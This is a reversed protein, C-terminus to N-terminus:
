FTYNSVKMTISAGDANTTKWYVTQATILPVDPCTGGISDLVAGGTNELAYRAGTGGSDGAVAGVRNSISSGILVTATKAITPVAASISQSTYSTQATASSLISVPVFSLSRGFQIGQVFQSSGNTPWIGILASYTYGSPMNAGGYIAATSTTANCALINKTGDGKAIAYVSVFGSAPAAGTDMGGAGTTALNVAQSYSALKQSTGGLATEVVIENATWTATASASTISCKLNGNIDAVGTDNSISPFGITTFATGNCFIIGSGTVTKTTAGDITESGNPDLVISYGAANYYCFWGDGLTAAATLTQTFAATANFTCGYNAVGLVTNSSRSIVLTEALPGRLIWGSNAANRQKKVGNTTDNWRMYPYTTAPASTGSNETAIAAALANMDALFSAGDQDDIVYDHQSM